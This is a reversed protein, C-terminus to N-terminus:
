DEQFIPASPTQYEASDGRASFFYDAQINRVAANGLRAANLLFGPLCIALAVEANRPLSGFQKYVACGVSGERCGNEELFGAKQLIDCAKTETLLTRIKFYSM